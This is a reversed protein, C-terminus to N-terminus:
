DVVKLRAFRQRTRQRRLETSDTLLNDVRGDEARSLFAGDRQDASDGVRGCFRRRFSSSTNSRGTPLDREAFRASSRLSTTWTDRVTISRSRKGVRSFATQLSESVSDCRPRNWRNLLPAEAPETSRSADFPFPEVEMAASELWVMTKPYEFVALTNDAFGPTRSLDNRLFSTVREPRGFLYVVIDLLHCLLEFLIGGEHRALQQRTADSCFTSMRGRVSFVEGLLGTKTWRIVRRFADNYRFMYGLQVRRNKQRAIDLIQAFAKLDDGAPKELWVHKGADVADRAVDLNEHVAGEVAVAQVTPDGLMEDKSEYWRVYAYTPTQSQARRRGEDPEFVGTFRVDSNAQLVSAHGSAHAHATGYQAVGIRGTESM